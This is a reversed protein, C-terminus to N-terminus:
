GKDKQYHTAPQDWLLTLHPVPCGGHECQMLDIGKFVVPHQHHVHAAPVITIDDSVECQLVEPSVSSLFHVLYICTLLLHPYRQSWSCSKM